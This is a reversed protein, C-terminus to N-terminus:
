CKIQQSLHWWRWSETSLCTSFAAGFVLSISSVSVPEGKRLAWKEGLSQGKFYTWLYTSECWMHEQGIISYQGTICLLLRNTNRWHKKAYTIMLSHNTSKNAQIKALSLKHRNINHFKFQGTLLNRYESPATTFTLAM